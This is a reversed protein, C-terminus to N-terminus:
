APEFGATVVRVDHRKLVDLLPRVAAAAPAIVVTGSRGAAAMADVAMDLLMEQGSVTRVQFGADALAKIMGPSGAAATYCYAGEVPREGCLTRMLRRFSLEGGLARAEAALAELDVLV